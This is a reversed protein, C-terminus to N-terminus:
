DAISFLQPPPRPATELLTLRFTVQKEDRSVIVAGEREYFAIARPNAVAATWAVHTCDHGRAIEVLRALLAAGVGRGRADADVYLDDLWLSPQGSFSSYRFYYLAFGRPDGADEAVLAHAFRPEGFLTAEIKERTTYVVGTFVGTTRDFEAKRRVYALLLSADACVAARIAVGPPSRRPRVFAGSEWAHEAERVLADDASLSFRRGIEYMEFPHQADRLDVREPNFIGTVLFNVRAQTLTLHNPGSVEDATPNDKGDDEWWCVLCIDYDGRTALTRAGCCPCPEYSAPTGEIRPVDIGLARLRTKLFDNTAAAYRHRLWVMLVADYRRDSAPFRLANHEFEERVDAPVSQWGPDDSWAECLMTGLQEARHEASLEALDAISLTEIAETRIM